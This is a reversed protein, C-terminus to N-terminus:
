GVVTNFLSKGGMFPNTTNTGGSQVKFMNPDTKFTLGRNTENMEALTKQNGGGFNLTTFKVPAFTTEGTKM